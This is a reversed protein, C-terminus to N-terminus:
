GGIVILRTDPWGECVRFILYVTLSTFYIAGARTPSKTSNGVRSFSSFSLGPGDEVTERKAYTAPRTQGRENEIYSNVNVDRTVRMVTPHTVGVTDAIQQYTMGDARMAWPCVFFGSNGTPEYTHM